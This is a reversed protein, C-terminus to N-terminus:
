IAKELLESLGTKTSKNKKIVVFVTLISFVIGLIILVTIQPVISSGTSIGNRFGDVAYTFPMYKHIAKFFSASLEIPYTGASGSLQLIMFVLLLFSGVKGMLINMLYVIAMFSISAVIAVLYTRGVYSPDLGNILMLASIMVVAQIVAMSLLKLVKKPWYVKPNEKGNNLDREAPFLITLALCGVWLGVCMMYASMANGNNAIHSNVYEVSEVPAAFMEKSKDSLKTEKIAESGELLSDKLTGSGDELKNAGDSLELSGDYLKSAGNSISKSASNITSIGSKLSDNNETLTNLGQTLSNSGEAIQGIGNTLEPVSSNLTATGNSLSESGNKLSTIGSNIAKVGPIVQNDLANGVTELGSYLNNITTKSKDVLINSSSALTGLSTKVKDVQSSIASVGNVASNLNNSASKTETAINTLETSLNNLPSSLDSIIKQQTTSDLAKFWDAEKIEAIKTSLEKIYASSNQVSTGVNTLNTGLATFSSTLNNSSSSQMANNINNIGSNLSDLSTTLIKINKSNEDNVSTGISSSLTNLGGLLNESGKQLNSVGSNLANAGNNLSGVGEALTSSKDNLTTIGSNLSQSGAQIKNVASLYDNIGAEYTNIGDTFTLSSDYLVKLNSSITDSGEKLTLLGENIQSAGDAADSLQVGISAFEDFVSKAYVETVSNQISTTIKQVASESMKSAIYNKGPSTKYQLEMKTPNDELLTTANYSFNEPITIIMYYSGNDLGKQATEADVFNFNLSANEKLNKVLENGVALEEGNYDCSKDLNVVAVPLKDVNGYPDWMSGLFVTTYITPILIVAIVAILKIIKLLHSKDQKLEDM